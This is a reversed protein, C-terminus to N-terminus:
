PWVMEVITTRQKPTMRQGSRCAGIGMLWVKEGSEPTYLRAGTTKPVCFSELSRSCPWPRLGDFPGAHYAGDRYMILVVNGITKDGFDPWKERSDVDFVFSGGSRTVTLTSVVPWDRCEDPCIHLKAQQWEDLVGDPPRTVSSGNSTWWERVFQVTSCGCLVFVLLVALTSKM